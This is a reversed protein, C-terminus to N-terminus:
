RPLNLVAAKIRENKKGLPMISGKVFELAFNRAQSKVALILPTLSKLVEAATEGEERHESKLIQTVAFKTSGSDECLEVNLERFKM